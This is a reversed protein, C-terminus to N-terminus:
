EMKNLTEERNIISGIINKLNYVVLGLASLLALKSLETFILIVTSVLLSASHVAVKQHFSLKM